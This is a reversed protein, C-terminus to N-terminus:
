TQSSPAESGDDDSSSADLETAQAGCLLASPSLIPSARFLEMHAPQFSARDREVCDSCRRFRGEMEDTPRLMMNKCGEGSCASIGMHLNARLFQRFDLIRRARRMMGHIGERLIENERVLRLITLRSVGLTDAYRRLIRAHEEISVFRVRKIRAM